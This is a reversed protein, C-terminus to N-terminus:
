CGFLKAYLDAARRHALLWEHVEDWEEEQLQTRAVQKLVEQEVTTMAREANLMDYGYSLVLALTTRDMAQLGRTTREDLSRVEELVQAVEERGLEVFEVMFEVLHAEEEDTIQGDAWALASLARIATLKEIPTM